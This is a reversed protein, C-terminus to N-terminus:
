LARSYNLHHRRDNLHSDISLMSWGSASISHIYDNGRSFNDNSCCHGRTLDNDAIINFTHGRSSSGSGTPSSLLGKVEIRPEARHQEPLVIVAEVLERLAAACAENGEVIRRGLTGALDDVWSANSRASPRQWSDSWHPRSPRQL